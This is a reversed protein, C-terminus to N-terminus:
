TVHNHFGHMFGSFKLSLMVIIQMVASVSSLCAFKPLSYINLNYDRVSTCWSGEPISRVLYKTGRSMFNPYSSSKRGWNLALNLLSWPVDESGMRM